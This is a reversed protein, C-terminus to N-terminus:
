SVYLVHYFHRANLSIIIYFCYQLFFASFKIFISPMLGCIWSGLHIKYTYTYVYWMNYWVASFCLCLSIKMLNAKQEDVRSYDIVKAVISKRNLMEVVLLCGLTFIDLPGLYINIWCFYVFPWYVCSFVNVDSTRISTCIM